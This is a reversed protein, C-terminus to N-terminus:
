RCNTVVFLLSTLRLLLTQQPESRQETERRSKVMERWVFSQGVTECYDFVLCGEGFFLSKDLIPLFYGSFLDIMPYVKILIIKISSM